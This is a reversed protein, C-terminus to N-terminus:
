FLILLGFGFARGRGVGNTLARAFRTEDAVRLCGNFLSVDHWADLGPKDFPEREVSVTASVVDFGYDAGRRGLWALREDHKGAALPRRKGDERTKVTVSARLMFEREAGLAPIEVPQGPVDGRVLVALGAPREVPCYLFSRKGNPAFREYVLRHLRYPSPRGEIAILTENVM